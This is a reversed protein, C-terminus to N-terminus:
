SLIKKIIASLNEKIWQETKYKCEIESEGTIYEGEPLKAIETEGLYITPSATFDPYYRTEVYLVPFDLNQKGGCDEKWGIDQFDFNYVFVIGEIKM